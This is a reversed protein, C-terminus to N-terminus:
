AIVLNSVIASVTLEEFWGDIAVQGETLSTEGESSGEVHSGGQDTGPVDGPLV